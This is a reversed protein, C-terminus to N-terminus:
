EVVLVGKSVSFHGPYSCLYAYSGKESPVTFSVQTTKGAAVLSTHAVIQEKLLPPIYDNAKQSMAANGFRNPDSGKTLLVFNHELGSVTGTNELVIVLESGSQATIRNPKFRLFDDAKLTVTRAQPASGTLPVLILGLLAGIGFLKM